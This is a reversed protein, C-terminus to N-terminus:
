FNLVYWNMYGNHPPPATFCFGSLFVSLPFFNFGGQCRPRRRESGKGARGRQSTRKSSPPLQKCNPDAGQIKCQEPDPSPLPEAISTGEGFSLLQSWKWDQRQTKWSPRPAPPLLLSPSLFHRGWVKGGWLGGPGGPFSSGEPIPASFPLLLQLGSSLTSFSGATIAMTETCVLSHNLLQRAIPM